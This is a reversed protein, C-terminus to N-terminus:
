HKHAQKNHAVQKSVSRTIGESKTLAITEHDQSYAKEQRVHALCFAANENKVLPPKNIYALQHKTQM